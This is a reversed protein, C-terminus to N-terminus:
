TFSLCAICKQNLEMVFVNFKRHTWFLFQATYFRDYLILDVIFSSKTKNQKGQQKETNQKQSRHTQKNRENTKITGLCFFECNLPCHYVRQTFHFDVGSGTMKFEGICCVVANRIAYWLCLKDGLWWHAIFFFYCLQDTTIIVTSVVTSVWSQNVHNGALITSM